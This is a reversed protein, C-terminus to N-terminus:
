DDGQETVILFNEDEAMIPEDDETLLQGPHVGPVFIGWWTSCTTGSYMEPTIAPSIAPKM